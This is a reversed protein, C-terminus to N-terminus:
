KSLRERVTRREPRKISSIMNIFEMFIMQEKEKDRQENQEKKTPM